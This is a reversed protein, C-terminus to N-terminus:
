DLGCGLCVSVCVCSKFFLFLLLLLIVTNTTVLLFTCVYSSIHKARHRLWPTLLVVLKDHFRGLSEFYMIPVLTICSYSMAAM